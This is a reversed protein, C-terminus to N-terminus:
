LPDGRRRRCVRFVGSTWISGVARPRGFKGGFVLLVKQGAIHGAEAVMGGPVTQGYLVPFDGFRRKVAGVVAAPM